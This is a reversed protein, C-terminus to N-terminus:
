FYPKFKEKVDIYHEKREKAYYNKRQTLVKDIM